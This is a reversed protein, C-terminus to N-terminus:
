FFSIAVSQRVFGMGVVLIHIPIAGTLVFFYDSDKEIFYNLSIIFIIALIFNLFVIDAIIFSSLYAILTYIYDNKLDTHFFSYNELLEIHNKKYQFWDGGVEYRLGIFITLVFLLFYWILIKNRASIRNEFVTVISPFIFVVWYPWM